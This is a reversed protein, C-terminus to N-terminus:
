AHHYPTKNIISFSRYLQEVLMVRALRHPLTMKSLSLMIDAQSRVEQPLGYAGGIFFAIHGRGLDQQTILLKALQASSLEKGHEDLAVTVAQDKRLQQFTYNLGKKSDEKVEIEECTAVHQLRKIYDGVLEREPGQNIKGVAVITLKM